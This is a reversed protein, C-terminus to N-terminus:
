LSYHTPAIVFVTSLADFIKPFKGSIWHMYVHLIMMLLYGLWHITFSDGCVSGAVWQADIVCHVPLHILPLASPKGDCYGPWSAGKRGMGGWQPSCSSMVNIRAISFCAESHPPGNVSVLIHHEVSLRLQHAMLSLYKVWWGQFLWSSGTRDFWV